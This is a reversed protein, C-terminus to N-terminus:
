NSKRVRRAIREESGLETIKVTAWRAIALTTLLGILEGVGTVGQFLADNYKEPGHPPLWHFNTSWQHLEGPDSIGIADSAEAVLGYTIWGAGFVTGIIGGVGGVVFAAGQGLVYLGRGFDKVDERDVM